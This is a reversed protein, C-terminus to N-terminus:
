QLRQSNPVAQGGGAEVAPVVNVSALLTDGSSSFLQSSNTDLNGSLIGDENIQRNTSVGGDAHVLLLSHLLRDLSSGVTHDHYVQNLVCGAILIQSSGVTEVGTVLGVEVQVVTGAPTGVVAIRGSVQTGHQRVVGAVHGLRQTNELILNRNRASQLRSSPRFDM